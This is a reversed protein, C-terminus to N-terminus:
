LLYQRVRLLSALEVLTLVRQVCLLLALPLLAPVAEVPEVGETTPEAPLLEVELELSM